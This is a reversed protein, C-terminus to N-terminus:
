RLVGVSSLYFGVRSGNGVVVAMGGLGEAIGSDSVWVSSVFVSEYKSRDPKSVM